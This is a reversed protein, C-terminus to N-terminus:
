LSDMGPLQAAGHRLLELYAPVPETHRCAPYNSCGLFHSGNQSNEREILQGNACEPCVKSLQSM